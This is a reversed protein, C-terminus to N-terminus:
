GQMVNRVFEEYNIAGNSDTEVGVLLQDVQKSTLKEGLSTLVHRLEVASMFGNAEKDFVRLGDTFEEVSGPCDITSRELIPAFKSFTIRAEGSPDLETQIKAVETELPNKNMARLIIGIDESSVCEDGQKDFILFVERATDLESDSLVM